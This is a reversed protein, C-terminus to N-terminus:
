CLQLTSPSNLAAQSCLSSSVESKHSELPAFARKFTFSDKGQAHTKTHKMTKQIAFFTTIGTRPQFILYIHKYTFTHSTHLHRHRESDRSGGVEHKQLALM